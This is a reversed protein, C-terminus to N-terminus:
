FFVDSFKEFIKSSKNQSLIEKLEGVEEKLKKFAGQANPWDFIKRDRLGVDVTKDLTSPTKIM